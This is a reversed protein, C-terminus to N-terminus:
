DNPAGAQLWSRLGAIFTASPPPFQRATLKTVENPLDDGGCPGVDFVMKTDEDVVALIISKAPDANVFPMGNCATFNGPPVNAMKTKISTYATAKTSFDLNMEITAPTRGPAGPAHCENCHGFYDGYIGTFTNAAAAPADATGGGGDPGAVEGCAGAFLVILSSIASRRM